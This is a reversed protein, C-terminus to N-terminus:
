PALVDDLCARLARHAAGALEVPAWPHTLCALEIRDALAVDIPLIVVNGVTAVLPLWGFRQPDDRAPPFGQGPEFMAHVAYSQSAGAGELPPFPPAAGCRRRLNV